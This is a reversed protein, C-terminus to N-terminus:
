VNLVAAATVHGADLDILAKDALGLSYPTTEVHLRHTEAFGLFERADQRTNATVTRLHREYFLHHEYDLPPIDTLHISALVVTGGRATVRLAAPVLSGVPAFIAAGDLPVPPPDAPDCASAAGLARALERAAPNRTIVHVEIGQRLAYQAALHASSGFGYIGLHGGPAVGACRVTRYGSIGACLLPALEIDRYGAPLRHVATAPVAIREAYGGDASWGTFTAHPCLNEDGRRCYRCDGCTSRVWGVGVRDGVAVGDVDAGVAQVEGVVQHGPTVHPHRVPLDGQTVHLDTRCVASTLVAVVLEGPGAVPARERVAVLAGARLPGPTTVRWADIMTM